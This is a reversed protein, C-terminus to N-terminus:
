HISREAGSRFTAPEVGTPHTIDTYYAGALNLDAPTKIEGYIGQSTHAIEFFIYPIIIFYCKQMAKNRTLSM